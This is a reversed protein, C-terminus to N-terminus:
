RRVPLAAPAAGSTAGRRPPAQMTDMGAAKLVAEASVYDLKPAQKRIGNFVFFRVTDEIGVRGATVGRDKLIGAIKFFPSEDEEWARIDSGAPILESARMVEFRPAVWAPAGKAPLVVAFTRESRGWRVGTFYTMAPGGELVIAQLGFEKMAQQAKSIRSRYTEASVQTNQLM